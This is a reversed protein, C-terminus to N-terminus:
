RCAGRYHRGPNRVPSPSFFTGQQQQVRSGVKVQRVTHRVVLRGEIM